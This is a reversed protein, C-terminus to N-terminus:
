GTKDRVKKLDEYGTGNHINKYGYEELSKKAKGSRNGSRCYVVVKREKDEGITNALKEVEDHEINISNDLHGAEYEQRSRVDILLAGDDILRWARLAPTPEGPQESGAYSMVSLSMLVILTAIAFRKM